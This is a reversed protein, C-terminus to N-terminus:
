RPMTRQAHYNYDNQRAQTSTVYEQKCKTCVTYEMVVQYTVGDDSRGTIPEVSSIEYAADKADCLPCHKHSM